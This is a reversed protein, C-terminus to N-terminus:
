STHTKAARRSATCRYRSASFCEWSTMKSPCPRCCRFICAQVITFSFLTLRLVQLITPCVIFSFMGLTGLAKLSTWIHLRGSSEVIMQTNVIAAAGTMKGVLGLNAVGLDEVRWRFRFYHVPYSSLIDYGRKALEVVVIPSSSTKTLRKSVTGSVHSRVVYSCDAEIGPFDSLHVIESLRQQAVNFVGLMGVGVRARGNYTKVKLLRLEDYGVYASSSKGVCSPRLIVTNGRTTRATMQHILDVDHHGPSDTFYIPGGSVCRAAAHFAAWPHVTQFMDWDPLVNLHQTFLANYANSFVHWPHSSEIDPFFDDSNRLLLRPKDSPLQSHFIIQPISSMCSIARASFYRLNAVSWADQYARIMAHRDPASNLEDLMFQADTKVSDIGSKNLFHYFDRYFRGIDEPDICILTKGNVMKVNRTKYDKVLQGDPSIAGWYGFMAHWVAVHRISKHDRRIRSVTSHLGNPAVTENAEFHLMGRNMQDEGAHDLSQWNDDIILNTIKIDNKDLSDLAQFIKDETLNQGLGNWTCYAFGDAWEEQWKTDPDEPELVEQEDPSWNPSRLRRARYMVTSNAVEFSSAVAVLVQATGEKHSDNRANLIVNGENDSQFLSLVDDIGSIALIVVSRGDHRLFSCLMADKDVSFKSRGHRPALWPNWPRVLAFWRTFNTPIGLSHKSYGSDNEHAANVPAKLSWLLTNDTETKLSKIEISPSLGGLYDSIDGKPLGPDSFYIVGDSSPPQSGVWKWNSTANQRFKITFKLMPQNHSARPVALSYLRRVRSTTTTQGVCLLGGEDVTEEFPLAKWEQDDGDLNVWLALEFPKTNPETELVAQFTVDGAPLVTAQDLPPYCIIEAFMDTLSSNRRAETKPWPVIRIPLYINMLAPREMANLTLPPQLWRTIM